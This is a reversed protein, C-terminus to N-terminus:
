LNLNLIFDGVVMITSTYALKILNLQYNFMENASRGGSPNFSRCEDLDSSLPHSVRDVSMVTSAYM